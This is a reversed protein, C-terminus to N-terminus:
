AHTSAPLRSPAPGRGVSPIGCLGFGGAALSAGYGIDAAAEAASPTLKDLVQNNKV